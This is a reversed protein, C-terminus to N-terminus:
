RFISPNSNFLNMFIFFADEESIDNIDIGNRELFKLYEGEHVLVGYIFWMDLTSTHTKGYAPGDFRHLFGSSIRYEYNYFNDEIREPEEYAFNCYSPISM